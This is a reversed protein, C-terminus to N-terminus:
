PSSSPCAPPPYENGLGKKCVLTAKWTRGGDSTELFETPGVALTFLTLFGTKQDVFYPGAYAVGVPSELILNTQVPVWTSGGDDTHYLPLPIMRQSNDRNKTFMSSPGALTWGHNPDVFDVDIQAERPLSRATWTIGGDSTALLAPHSGSVVLFGRLRDFFVPAGFRADTALNLPLTQVSWTVGGDHTALLVDRVFRLDTGSPQNQSPVSACLSMSMWGADPSTFMVGAGCPTGSNPLKGAGANSTLLTWHLGGDRTGYLMPPQPDPNFDSIAFWGMSADLFFMQGSGPEFPDPLVEGKQWTKGGDVTRFTVWYFPSGRRGGGLETIFALNKDVIDNVDANVVRDLLHPPSVNSWSAGGDTTRWLQSGGVLAWGATPTIMTTPFIVPASGTSQGVSLCAGLALLALTILAFLALANLGL